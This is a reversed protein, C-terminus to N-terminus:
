QTIYPQKRPIWLIALTYILNATLNIYIMIHYLNRRFVSSHNIGYLWFIEIVLKFTFFIIAGSAILFEPNLFISRDGSLWPEYTGRYILRNVLAICMLVILFSYAIRFWSSVMIITGIAINEWAWLLILFLLLMRFIWPRKEFLQRNRFFVLFLIAEALVYVNNNVATHYGNRWLIYSLIENLCGIWICLVFPLYPM